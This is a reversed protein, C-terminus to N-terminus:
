MTELNAKVATLGKRGGSRIEGAMLPALLAMFGKPTVQGQLSLKTGAGAPELTYAFEFDLPTSEGVFVIRSSPTFDTVACHVTIRSSAVKTHEVFQSGVRTPGPTAITFSEVEGNWKPINDLNAMFAFVDAPPRSITVVESIKIM